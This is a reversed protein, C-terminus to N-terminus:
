SLPGWCVYGFVVIVLFVGIGIFVWSWALNRDSALKHKGM